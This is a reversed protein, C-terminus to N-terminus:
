LLMIRRVKGIIPSFVTRGIKVYTIVSVGRQSM